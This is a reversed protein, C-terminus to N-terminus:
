FSEMREINLVFIIAGGVTVKTPLFSQAEGVEGISVSLNEHLERVRCTEKILSLILNVRIGEVGILLTTNGKRLFGGTSSVKTFQFGEESLRDMLRNGDQAQVITILLKM